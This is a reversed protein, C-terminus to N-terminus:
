ADQLAALAAAIDADAAERLVPADATLAALGERKLRAVWQGAERGQEFGQSQLLLAGSASLLKFYFRGDGERYQKFVPQAAKEAKAAATKQALSSM